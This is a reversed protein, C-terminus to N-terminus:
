ADTLKRWLGCNSSPDSKRWQDVADKVVLLIIAIGSFLAPYNFEEIGELAWTLKVQHISMVMFLAILVSIGLSVWDEPQTGKEAPDTDPKTVRAIITSALWLVFVVISIITTTKWVM